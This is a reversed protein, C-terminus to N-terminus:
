IVLTVYKRTVNFVGFCVRQASRVDQIITKNLLLSVDTREGLLSKKTMESHFQILCQKITYRRLSISKLSQKHFFIGGCMIATVCLFVSCGSIVLGDCSLYVFLLLFCHCFPSFVPPTLWMALVTMEQRAIMRKIFASM